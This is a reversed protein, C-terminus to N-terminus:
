SYCNFIMSKMLRMSTTSASTVVMDRFSTIFRWQDGFRLKQKNRPVKIKIEAVVPQTPGVPIAGTLICENRFMNRCVTALTLTGLNTIPVVTESAKVMVMAWELWGRGADTQTAEFRAGVEIFLNIYKITDGINCEENTGAGAKITSAGGTVSRAGAETDVVVMTAPVSGAGMTSVLSDSHQVPMSIQRLKISRRRYPM